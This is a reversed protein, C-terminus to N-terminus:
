QRGGLFWEALGRVGTAIAAVGECLKEPGAGLGAGLARALAWGVDGDPAQLPDSGVGNAAQRRQM